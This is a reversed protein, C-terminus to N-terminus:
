NPCGRVHVDRPISRWDTVGGTHFGPVWGLSDLWPHDTSSLGSVLDAMYQISPMELVSQDSISWGPTDMIPGKTSDMTADLLDTMAPRHSQRHNLRSLANIQAPKTCNLWLPGIYWTQEAPTGMSWFPLSM